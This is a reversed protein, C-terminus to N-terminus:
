RRKEPLIQSEEKANYITHSYSDRSVSLRPPEKYIECPIVKLNKASPFVNLIQKAVSEASDNKDIDDFQMTIEFFKDGLKYRSM